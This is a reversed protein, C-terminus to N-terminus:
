STSFATDDHPVTKFAIGFTKNGADDARELWILQAGNKEYEMRWLVADIEDIRESSLVRFGHFLDNIQM